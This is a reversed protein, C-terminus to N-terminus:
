LCTRFIVDRVNKVNSAQSQDIRKSNFNERTDGPRVVRSAYQLPLRSRSGQAPHVDSGAFAVPIERLWHRRSEHQFTPLLAGCFRTMSQDRTIEFIFWRGFVEMSCKTAFTREPAFIVASRRGLFLDAKQCSSVDGFENIWAVIENDERSSCFREIARKEGMSQDDGNMPVVRLRDTLARSTEALQCFRRSSTRRVSHRNRPTRVSPSRYFCLGSSKCPFLSVDIM